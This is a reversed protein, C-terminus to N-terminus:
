SEERGPGFSPLTLYVVAPAQHTPLGASGCSESGNDCRQQQQLQTRLLGWQRAEAGGAEEKSERGWVVSRERLVSVSSQAQQPRPGLPPWAFLLTLTCTKVLSRPDPRVSEPGLM